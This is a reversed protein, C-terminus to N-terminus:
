PPTNTRVTAEESRGNPFTVTVSSASGAAKPIEALAEQLLNLVAGTTASRPETTLLAQTLAIRGARGADLTEDAIQLRPQPLLIEHVEIEPSSSPALPPAQQATPTRASATGSASTVATGPVAPQTTTTPSETVGLSSVLTQRLVILAPKLDPIGASPSVSGTALAAELFLGSKQVASQIDSGALNPDLSTRQALVQLVAQRLPPPLSNSAALTGLNAFM